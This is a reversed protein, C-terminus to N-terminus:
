WAHIVTNVCGAKVKTFLLLQQKNNTQTHHQQMCDTM